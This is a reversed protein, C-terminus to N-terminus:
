ELCVRGKLIKVAVTYSPKEERVMREIHRKAPQTDIDMNLTGQYVVGFNGEGLKTDVRFHSGFLEWEDRKTPLLRMLTTSYQIVCQQFIYMTIHVLISYAHVHM